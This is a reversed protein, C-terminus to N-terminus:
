ARGGRWPLWLVPPGPKPTLGLGFSSFYVWSVGAFDVLTQTTSWGQDNLSWALIGSPQAMPGGLAVQQAQELTLARNWIAVPGLDVNWVMRDNSYRNLWALSATETGLSGTGAVASSFSVASLAGSTPYTTQWLYVQPTRTFDFSLVYFQWDTSMTTSAGSYNVAGTSTKVYVALRDSTNLILDRCGNTNNAQGSSIISCNLTLTGTRKAWFAWTFAQLGFLGSPATARAYGAFSSSITYAM